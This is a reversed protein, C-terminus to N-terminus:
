KFKIKQYGFSDSTYFIKMQQHLQEFTPRNDANEEWCDTMLEYLEDPCGMPRPMRYGQKLKELVGADSTDPYPYSRCYHIVEWVLVGYSWINSKINMQNSVIAEQPSWRIPISGAPVDYYAGYEHVRHVHPYISLKSKIVLTEEEEVEIMVNKASLDQHICNHQELYKMAAAVQESIKVLEAMKVDKIEFQSPLYEKLSGNVMHETLVLFPKSNMHMARFQILNEHNMTKMLACNDLLDLSSVSDDKVKNVVVIERKWVGKWVESFQGTALREDFTVETCDTICHPVICPNALTTCLGAANTSHYQVLDHISRFSRKLSVYFMGNDSKFIRYNRPKEQDRVTVSFIGTDKNQRVMFSGIQNSSTM